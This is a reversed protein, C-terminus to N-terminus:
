FRVNALLAKNGHYGRVVSAPILIPRRCLRGLTDRHSRLVVHVNDICPSFYNAPYSSPEFSRSGFTLWLFLLIHSADFRIVPCSQSKCVRKVTLCVPALCKKRRAALLRRPHDGGFTQSRSPVDTTVAHSSHAATQSDCLDCCHRFAAFRLRLSPPFGGFGDVRQDKLLNVKNM